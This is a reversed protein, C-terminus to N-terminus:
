LPIPGVGPLADVDGYLCILMKAYDKMRPRLLAEAARVDLDRTGAAGRSPAADFVIWGGTSRVVAFYHGVSRPRSTTDDFLAEKIDGEPVVIGLLTVRLTHTKAARTEPTTYGYEVSLDDDVLDALRMAKTFRKYQLFCGNNLWEGAMADADYWGGDTLQVYEDGNITRPPANTRTYQALVRRLLAQQRLGFCSEFVDLTFLPEGFNGKNCFANKTSVDASNANHWDWGVKCFDKWLEINWATSPTRCRNCATKLAGAITNLASSEFAASQFAFQHANMLYVVSNIWCHNFGNTVNAPQLTM